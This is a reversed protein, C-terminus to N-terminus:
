SAALILTIEGLVTQINIKHGEAHMNPNNRIVEPPVLNFEQGINSMNVSFIGNHLNLFETVSAEALENDDIVDIKAFTAAVKNMCSESMILASLLSKNNNLFQRVMIKDGDEQMDELSLWPELYLFRLINKFFLVAYHYLIEQQPDGVLPLLQRVITDIDGNKLAALQDNNSRFLM